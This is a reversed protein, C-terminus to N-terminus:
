SFKGDAAQRSDGKRRAVDEFIGIHSHGQAVRAITAVTVTNHGMRCIRYYVTDKQNPVM